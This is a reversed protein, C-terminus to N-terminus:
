KSVKRELTFRNLNVLADSYKRTYFAFQRVAQRYAMAGDPHTSGLDMAYVFLRTCEEQASDYATRAQEVAEMLRTEIESQQFPGIDVAHAEIRCIGRPSKKENTDPLASHFAYWKDVDRVFSIKLV